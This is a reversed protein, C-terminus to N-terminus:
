PTTVRLRIHRGRSNPATLRITISRQGCVKFDLTIHRRSSQGTALVTRDDDALLTLNARADGPTALRVTLAGDLPTLLRQTWVTRRTRVDVLHTTPGTWPALVDQEVADLAAQDPYFSKDVLPWSPQTRGLRTDVLFRYTEAFAEGPNLRYLLFEDGPYVDDSRARSCINAISAWRKPGWDVAPWPTNLRNHAIHHGYEHRAVEDPAFGLAPENTVVLQDDGYCGVAHTGCITQVEVLPAVYARLLELKSGHLLSAFFDAWQQGIPEDAPYSASVSVDVPEGTTATYVQERWPIDGISGTRARSLTPVHAALSFAALTSPRAPSAPRLAVATAGIAALALLGTM